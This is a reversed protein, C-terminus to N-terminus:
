APGDPRESEELIKLRGKWDRKLLDRHVTKLTQSTGMHNRSRRERTKLDISQIL